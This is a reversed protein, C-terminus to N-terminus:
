RGKPADDAARRDVWADLDSLRLATTRPGLRIPRPFDPDNRVLRWLTSKSIGLRRAAASPRLLAPEDHSPTM